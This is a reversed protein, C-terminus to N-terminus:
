RLFAPKIECATNEYNVARISDIAPNEGCLPCRPNRPLRITRFESKLLDAQIMKGALSHGAGTLMKVAEAAQMSGILGAMAGIVGAQSCNPVADAPPPSHFVCRYCFTEGPIIGFVQGEFRLIGGAILPTKLFFAADNALFKTPFNDSTELILDYGSLTELASDPTLRIQNGKIEIEPNLRRLKEEAVRAKPKGLDDTSFLIQRQLNTVDVTDSDLFALQGIGAAALYLLAPNGLGGCGIVMVKSNKLKEQGSKRIEPLLLHRSYRTIEPNSLM